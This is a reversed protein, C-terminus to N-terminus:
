NDSKKPRNPLHSRKWMRPLEDDIEKCRHMKLKRDGKAIVVLTM